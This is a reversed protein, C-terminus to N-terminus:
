NKKLTLVEPHGADCALEQLDTEFRFEIKDDNIKELSGKAENNAYLRVWDSEAVSIDFIVNCKKDEGYNAKWSATFNGNADRNIKLNASINENEVSYQGFFNFYANIYKRLCQANECNENFYNQWATMENFQYYQWNLVATNFIPWGQPGRKFGENLIIIENEKDRDLNEFLVSAIKINDVTQNDFQNFNPLNLQKYTNNQPILAKGYWYCNFCDKDKYFFIIADQWSGFNGRIVQHEFEKGAPLYASAIDKLSQETKEQEKKEEKEDATAVKMTEDATADQAIQEKKPETKKEVTIIRIFIGIAILVLISIIIIFISTKSLRKM